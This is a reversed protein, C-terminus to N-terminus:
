PYFQTNRVRQTNERGFENLFENLVKEELEDSEVLQLHKCCPCEYYFTPIKDRDRPILHLDFRNEIEIIAGCRRCTVQTAKEVVTKGHKIIRM